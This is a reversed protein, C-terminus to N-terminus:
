SDESSNLDFWLWFLLCCIAHALHPKKTEDDLLKGKLRSTIHRLAADSYREEANKVKVWNNKEYKIAGFTLVEVVVRLPGIPLLSWRPKGQDFKRGESM